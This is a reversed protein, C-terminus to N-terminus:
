DWRRSRSKSKSIETKKLQFDVDADIFWDSIMKYIAKGKELVFQENETTVMWVYGGFFLSLWLLRRMNRM